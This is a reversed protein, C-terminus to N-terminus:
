HVLDANLAASKSNQISERIELCKIYLATVQKQKLIDTSFIDEYKIEGNAVQNTHIHQQIAPCILINPITDIHACRLPCTVDQIMSRFDNKIGRVTRTRLALLMQVSQFDFLPSKPYQAMELNDYKLNEMKSHKSKMQKLHKMGAERIKTKIKDKYNTTNMEEIIDEAKIDIDIEKADKEILDAFDGPTPDM